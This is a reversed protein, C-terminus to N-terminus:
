YSRLFHVPQAVPGTFAFAIHFDSLSENKHLEKKDFDRPTLAVQFRIQNVYIRGTEHESIDHLVNGDFLLPKGDKSAMFMKRVRRGGFSITNDRALSRFGEICSPVRDTHFAALARLFRHTPRPESSNLSCLKDSLYYCKQWEADSFPLVTREVEFPKTGVRLRWWISFYLGVCKLDNEVNKWNQDLYSSANELQKRLETEILGSSIEKFQSRARLYYGAKSGIACLQDFAAQSLQTQGLLEMVKMRQEQFYRQQTLDMPNEETEDFISVLNAAVESREDDEFLGQEILQRSIWGLTVTAHVNDPDASRAKAFADKASTYLERIRTKSTTGAETHILTGLCAALEESVVSRQRPSQTPIDQAQELVIVAKRLLEIRENLPMEAEARRVGERYFSSEQLMLRPSVVGREVRVKTLARAFTIISHTFRERYAQNSSNPGILRLLDIVLNIAGEAGVAAQPRPLAVILDCILSAESESRGGFLSDIYLQAELPHRPGVALDGNASEHWVLSNTKLCELLAPRLPQDLASLLLEIPIYCGYRGVTMVTAFLKQITNLVEGHIETQSVWAETPNGKIGAAELAIELTNLGRSQVPLNRIRTMIDSQDNEVEQFVGVRITPRVPPLLRYLAVLFIPDIFRPGQDKIKAALDPVFKELYEIFRRREDSGFERKAVVYNDCSDSDPVYYSSGIVVMKRGRDSLRNRLQLYDQEQRMGDWVLLGARSGSDETWNFFRDLVRWDVEKSSRDIFVVPFGAESAFTYALQALTVTKGTGTEGHLIFPVECKTPDALATNVLDSLSHYYDRVFAFSRAYPEWNRLKLPQELFNLFDFYNEDKSRTRTRPPLTLNDDLIVGFREVELCSEKPIFCPKGDITIQRGTSLLTGPDGLRLGESLSASQLFDALSQDVFQLVGTEVLKSLRSDDRMMQVPSFVFAQGPELQKLVPYLDKSRIWDTQSNWGDILLIGRPTLIDPMRRLLVVAAQQREELELKDLPIRCEHDEKNVCGFLFTACLRHKDRLDQPFSRDTFISNLSRWKKGFARVWVEDIASTYVNNWPYDSVTSLSESISIKESRRHLWGLIASRDEQSFQDLFNYFSEGDAMDPYREKLIQIFPHTVEGGRLYDQGLFLVAPGVKLRAIIQSNTSM